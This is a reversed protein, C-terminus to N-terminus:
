LLNMELNWIFLSISYNPSVTFIRGSDKSMLKLPYDGLAKLAALWVEEYTGTYLRTVYPEIPGTSVCSALWLTPILLFLKRLAM